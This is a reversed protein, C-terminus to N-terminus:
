VVLVDKKFGKVFAHQKTNTTYDYRICIGLKSKSSGVNIKVKM